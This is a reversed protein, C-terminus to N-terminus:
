VKNLIPHIKLNITVSLSYYKLANNLRGVLLKYKILFLIGFLFYSHAKKYYIFGTKSPKM